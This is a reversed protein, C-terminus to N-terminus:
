KPDTQTYVVCTYLARRSLRITVKKNNTNVAYRTREFSVFVGNAHKYKITHILPVIINYKHRKPSVASWNWSFHIFLM